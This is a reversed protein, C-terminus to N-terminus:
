ISEVRCPIYRHLPTGALKDRHTNKALRNVNAGHKTGDYELGFGHPIVVQGPRAKDSVEAEVVESGADTSIRVVQGDGIEAREADMPHILVTCGQKGENWEPNRMITNANYDYHRGAVLILPYEPNPELDRAEREADISQLWEALEPILVDIKGDKTRVSGLGNETDCKGIWLGEPHDLIAQFIQEGTMMGSDFGARAANEKFSSPATQLLGWLAALNYSGLEPGLTKALVLPLIDRANPQSAAYQMLSMGYQMRNGKAADYLSQPIEPILGMSDALRLFIESEELLDGEPEVVPQRMQFFIEPYNWSFFAADWKEYASRAPLVYHSLRATESMAVEVTVLLELKKFAEEYATTDAYSRLPNSGSVIVARLRNPKEGLIEEPMANPPFYGMIEPFDTEVTRWTKPDREDSHSGLPMLGATLVCGGSVGLRGCIAMLIIQLYSVLTSHRNMLVGLDPHMSWRRTAFLRCVERVEEFDLECVELAAKADFNEFWPVIQEFGSVHQAIYETNHWGENLIISIMARTMLADTGPRLALHIDAREATESKRPDIVVLLKEPDESIRKLHRRAQPMQHSMWGNWGVAVLMDTNAEDPVLVQYQRGLARGIVWFIGTLEQALANYHYKSGLGRLFRVGYAAEFHCAQGGGGMYAVARPGNRDVITRLKTAIEDIAEDWSIKQFDGGVRKLPHKLRDANHQYHAVKLGKRCVYGESRPNDKDPRVKVIRNEEVQVELGCNQACCVCTTKKWSGM